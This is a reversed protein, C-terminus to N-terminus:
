LFKVKDKYDDELFDRKEKSDFIVKSSIPLSDFAVRTMNIKVETLLHLNLIIANMIDNPNIEGSESGTIYRIGDDLWKNPNTYDEYNVAQENYEVEGWTSPLSVSEFLMGIKINQMILAGVHIGTVGEKIELNDTKKTPDITILIKEGAEIKYIANDEIMFKSGEAFELNPPMLALNKVSAPIKVKNKNVSVGGRYDTRWFSNMIVETGEPINIKSNTSLYNFSNEIIKTTSSLVVETQQALTSSDGSLNNIYKIGEAVLVKSVKSIVQNGQINISVVQKVVKNSNIDMTVESLFSLVPYLLEGTNPDTKGIKKPLNIVEYKGNGILKYKLGPTKWKVTVEINKTVVMNAFDFKEGNVVFSIDEEDMYNKIFQKDIQPQTAHTGPAVLEERLKEYGNIYVVKAMFRGYIKDVDQGSYVTEYKDDLYWGDFTLGEKGPKYSKLDVSGIKGYEGDIVTTMPRQIFKAYIKKTGRFKMPLQTIPKKYEADEYWGSFMYGSKYRPVEPKEYEGKSNVQIIQNIRGDVICNLTGVHNKGCASLMFICVGFLFILSLLKSKKM